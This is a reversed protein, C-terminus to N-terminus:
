RGPLTGPRAWASSGGGGGGGGGGSFGGGSSSSPSFSAVMGSFNTAFNSLSGVSAQFSGLGADTLSVGSAAFWAPRCAPVIRVDGNPLLLVETAIEPYQYSKAALVAPLLLFLLLRSSM